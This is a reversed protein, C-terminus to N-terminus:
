NLITAHFVSLVDFDAPIRHPNEFNWPLVESLHQLIETLILTFWSASWCRWGKIGPTVVPLFWGTFMASGLREKGWKSGAKQLQEKSCVISWLYVSHVRVSQWVRTLTSLSQWIMLHSFKMFLILWSLLTLGAHIVPARSFMPLEILVCIQTSTLYSTNKEVPQITSTTVSTPPIFVHVMYLACLRCPVSNHHIFLHDHVHTFPKRCCFNYM